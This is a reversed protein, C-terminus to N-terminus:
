AQCTPCWFTSRGAWKVRAIPGGCGGCPQGERGYALHRQQFTGGGGALDVYQDDGLTSGRAEIAEGLVARLVGHLREVESPSLSSSARWPSLGARHLVEDTYINGLGAIAHQDLLLPKLARSRAMLVPALDGPSALDDWADPGLGAIGPAEEPLRAPDVVVVEGFTRPDVFRLEEDRDLGVVVHTHKPRPSGEPALRLQGSMRLHVVLLKADDLPLMLYKGRRQAAVITRGRLGKVVAAPSTRRVTRQGTVVVPGLPRGVVTAALGRRVTEVEPLEPM